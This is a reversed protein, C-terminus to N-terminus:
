HCGIGGQIDKANIPIKKHLWIGGHYTQLLLLRVSKIMMLSNGFCPIPFLITISSKFLRNFSMFIKTKVDKLKLAESKSNLHAWLSYKKNSSMYNSLDPGISKDKITEVAKRAETGNWIM